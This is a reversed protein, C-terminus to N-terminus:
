SNLDWVQYLRICIDRVREHYQRLTDVHVADVYELYPYDALFEKQLIYDFSCGVVTRLYVDHMYYHLNEYLYSNWDAIYDSFRADTIPPPNGVRIDSQSKIITETISYENNVKRYHYLPAHEPIDLREFRYATPSLRRLYEVLMIDCCTQDLIDPHDSLYEFFPLLVFPRIGYAWFEYRYQQQSLGVWSEFAGAVGHQIFPLFREIRNPEYTDDDDCFFIWDQTSKVEALATAIHKMQSTPTDRPRFLLRDATADLQDIVLTRLEDTKFSISLYVTVPITQQLLSDICTILHPIREPISIHSAVIICIRPAM